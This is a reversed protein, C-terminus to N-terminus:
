IIEDVLTLIGYCKVKFTKLAWSLEASLLAKWSAQQSSSEVHHSLVLEVLQRRVKMCPTVCLKFLADCAQTNMYM